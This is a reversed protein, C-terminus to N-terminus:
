LAESQEVLRGMLADFWITRQATHTSVYSEADTLRDKFIRLASDSNLARIGGEHQHLCVRSDGEWICGPSYRTPSMVITMIREAQDSLWVREAPFGIDDIIIIPADPDAFKPNETVQRNWHNIDYTRQKEGLQILHDRGSTGDAFIHEKYEAYSGSWRDRTMAEIKIPEALSMIRSHFPLLHTLKEALWGKGIKPPGNLAIVFPKFRM